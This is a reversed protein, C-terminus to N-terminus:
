QFNKGAAAYLATNDFSVFTLVDEVNNGTTIEYSNGLPFKISGTDIDFTASTNTKNVRLTITRGGTINTAILHTPSASSNTLNFFNGQSCDISATDSAISITHVDGQVSGSFIQNGIFTNSGTTAFSGTTNSIGDIEVQLSATEAELNSLQNNQVNQEVEISATIIEINNLRNDTSQTYANFSGSTVFNTSLSGTFTELSDLRQDQVLQGAEFSASVDTISQTVSATFANYGANINEQSGTFAELSDLRQDQSGTDTELADLRNDVSASYITVNGIGNVTSSSIENSVTLSGTFSSNGEVGLTGSVIVQGILTQTDTEEDGLINSGSSFIVSASEELVHLIRTNLTDFNGITAKINGSATIDGLVDLSGTHIISGSFEANGSVILNDSVNVNRDLTITNSGSNIIIGLNTGVGDQLQTDGVSSSLSLEANELNVVGFFSQSIYLNSLNSM